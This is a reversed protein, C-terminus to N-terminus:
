SIQRQSFLNSEMIRVKFLLSESGIRQQLARIEDPNVRDPANAIELMFREVEDMLAPAATNLTQRMLRSEDILDRARSRESEFAATDSSDSNAIETLLIEARDLHDAVAIAAIRARAINSLGATVIQDGTSRDAHGRNRGAIFATLVLAAVVVAAAWSRPRLLFARFSPLRRQEALQPAIAAWISRGLDPDPEPVIWESCLQLSNALCEFASRCEACANLHSRGDRPAEPEDYYILILDQETLHKM